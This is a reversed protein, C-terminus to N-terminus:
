GGKAVIVFYFLIFELKIECLVPMTTHCEQIRKQRVEVIFKSFWYCLVEEDTELLDLNVFQYRENICLSSSMANREKPWENLKRLCWATNSKTKQPIRDERRRKLDEDSVPTIKCISSCAKAPIGNNDKKQDQAENFDDNVWELFDPDFDSEDVDIFM